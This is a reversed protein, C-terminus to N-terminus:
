SGTAFCVVTRNGSSRASSASATARTLPVLTFWSITSESDASISRTRASSSKVWRALRRRSRSLSSSSRRAFHGAVEVENLVEPEGLLDGTNIGSGKRSGGAKIEGVAGEVSGGGAEAVLVEVREDM